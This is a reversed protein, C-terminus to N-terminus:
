HVETKPYFVVDQFFLREKRAHAVVIYDDSHDVLLTPIKQGPRLLASRCLHARTIFDDFEEQCIVRDLFLHCSKNFLLQGVVSAHQM